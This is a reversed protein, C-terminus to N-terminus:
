RARTMASLACTYVCTPLASMYRATHPPSPLAACWPHSASAIARACPLAGHVTQQRSSSTHPLTLASSMECSDLRSVKRM